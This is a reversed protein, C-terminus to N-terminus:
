ILQCGEYTKYVKRILHTQSFDQERKPCTIFCGIKRNEGLNGFHGLYFTVARDSKGRFGGKHNVFVLDQLFSYFFFFFINSTFKLIILSFFDVVFLFIDFHISWRIISSIWGTWRSLQQFSQACRCSQTLGRACLAGKTSNLGLPTNINTHSLIM